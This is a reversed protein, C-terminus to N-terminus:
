LLFIHILNTGDCVSVICLNTFINLPLVSGSCRNYTNSTDKLTYVCYTCMRSSVFERKYKSM